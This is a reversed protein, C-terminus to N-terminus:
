LAQYPIGFSCKVNVRMGILKKLKGTYRNKIKIAFQIAM